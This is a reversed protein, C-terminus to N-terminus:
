SVGAPRGVIEGLQRRREAHWAESLVPRGTLAPAEPLKVWSRCGGFAPRDDFIWPEELAYVRLLAVNLGPPEDYRFREAVIERGLIHFPELWAVAEWSEVLAAWEVRAWWQVRIKGPAREPLPTGPPLQTRDAQEHFYTPFLFFEAHQFRFGDRGEAIGGKRLLISQRGRGLAECVLAWEKFGISESMLTPNM